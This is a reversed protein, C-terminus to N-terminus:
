RDSLTFKNRKLYFHGLAVAGAVTLVDRATLQGLSQLVLLLVACLSLTLGLSRHVTHVERGLLLRNRCVNAFVWLSYIGWFLLIFPVVLFMVPLKSPDFLSTFAALLMWSLITRTFHAKINM